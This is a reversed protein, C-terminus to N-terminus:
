KHMKTTSVEADDNTLLLYGAIKNQKLQIKNIIHTVFLLLNRLFSQQLDKPTIVELVVHM